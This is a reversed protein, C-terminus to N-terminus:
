RGTEAEWVRAIGDEAGSDIYRGGPSSAMCNVEEAHERQAVQRRDDIEWVRAVSGGGSAIYRGDPSVDLVNIGWEHVIRALEGGLPVHWMSVTSGGGSVVYKGDSTFRASPVYWGHVKRFVERGTFTEWLQAGHDYSAAVLYDGAPNFELWTIGGDQAMQSIKRGSAVEWVYISSEGCVTSPEYRDCTHSAIYRGDPSVASFQVPHTIRPFEEGPDMWVVTTADDILYSGDPSFAVSPASGERTLRATERGTQSEWLRTIEDDSSSIVYKGDPSFLVTWVVGGHAMTAIQKGTDIKWVRAISDGGGSVVYRSDASIDASWVGYDHVVRAIERGTEVESARITNDHEGASVLYKGDPSFAIFNVVSGHNVQSVPYALEDNYLIGSAISNPHLRTSQIALLMATMQKSDESSFLESAQAALQYALSTQAQREAEAAKSEASAQAIAQRNVADMMATATLSLERANQQSSWGWGALISILLVIGLVLWKRGSWGTQQSGNGLIISGTAQSSSAALVARVSLIYWSDTLYFVGASLRVNWTIQPYIRSQQLQCDRDISEDSRHESAADVSKYPM